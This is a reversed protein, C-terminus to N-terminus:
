HHDMKKGMQRIEAHADTVTGDSLHISLKVIDGLKYKQKPQFLMLHYGGPKFMIHSNAPIEVSSQMEMRAMGESITSKHMEVNKFEPSTIKIISVPKDSSNSAKFFGATVKAIPPAQNVWADNVSIATQAHLVPTHFFTSFVILGILGAQVHSLKRVSNFTVLKMKSRIM